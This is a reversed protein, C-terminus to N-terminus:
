DVLWIALVLIALALPILLWAPRTGDAPCAYPVPASRYRRTRAAEKM